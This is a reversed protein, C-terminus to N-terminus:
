RPGSSSGFAEGQRVNATSPRLATMCYSHPKGVQATQSGILTIGYIAVAYLNSTKAYEAYVSLQHALDGSSM